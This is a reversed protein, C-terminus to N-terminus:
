RHWTCLTSQREAPFRSECPAPVTSLQRGRSKPQPVFPSLPLSQDTTSPLEHYNLTYKTDAHERLGYMAMLHPLVPFPQELHLHMAPTVTDRRDEQFQIPNLDDVVDPISRPLANIFSHFPISLFPIRARQRANESM